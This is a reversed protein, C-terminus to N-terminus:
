RRERLLIWEAVTINIGWGAGMCMARSLEGRLDPFIFLPIHTFVQTGAGLGLAYARIMWARHQAIDHRLIAALGFWLSLAMGIGVLLRLVYLVSGDFNMTARPYFHTMWLGSIAALLGIPVLMRGYLRHWIQKDRLFGSTFQFAGLVSYIISSIVHMVIPIPSAFFRANEVTIDTGVGLQVLRFIGAVMPVLSLTVLGTPILWDAKARTTIWVNMDDWQGGYNAYLGFWLTIIPM